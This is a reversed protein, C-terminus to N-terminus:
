VTVPSYGLCGMLTTDMGMSSTVTRLLYLMLELISAKQFNHFISSQKLINPFAVKFDLINGTPNFFM